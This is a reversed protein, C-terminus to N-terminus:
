GQFMVPHYLIIGYPILRIEQLFVFDNEDCLDAIVSLKNRVWNCNFSVNKHNNKIGMSIRHQRFSFFDGACLRSITAAPYRGGM